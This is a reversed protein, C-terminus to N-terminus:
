KGTEFVQVGYTSGDKVTVMFRNDKDDSQIDTVDLDDSENILDWLIDKFRTIDM